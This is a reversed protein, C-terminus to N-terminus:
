RETQIGALIDSIICATCSSPASTICFVASVEPCVTIVENKITSGKKLVWSLVFYGPHKYFRVCYPIRNPTLTIEQQLWADVDEKSGLRFAKYCVMQGVLDNMPEIYRAFIEDIDAYPEDEGKIFLTDALGHDKRTGSTHKEEVEIHKYWNDQM